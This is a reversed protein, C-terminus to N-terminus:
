GSIEYLRVPTNVDSEVMSAVVHHLDFLDGLEDLVAPTIRRYTRRHDSFTYGFLHYGLGSLFEIVERRVSLPNHLEIVLRPTHTRLTHQMGRLAMAEAGEIDIKIVTPKPLSPEDRLLSDLTRVRVIETEAGLGYQAHSESPQGGTVRDLAASGTTMRDIQLKEDADVDGLALPMIVSRDNIRGLDLNAQLLPRNESMPEVAVLKGAGFAQVIFRGYLGINAGVDFVTDGHRILHRLAGLMFAEHTLPHRLWFSRNRRLRIYFPGIPSIQIQRRVDPIARLAWRGLTKRKRLWNTLPSLVGM